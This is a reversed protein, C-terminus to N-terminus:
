RRSQNKNRNAGEGSGGSPTKEAPKDSRVQTDPRSGGDRKNRNFNKAM